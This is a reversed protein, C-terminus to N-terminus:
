EEATSVPYHVNPDALPGQLQQSGQSSHDLSVFTIKHLAQSMAPDPHSTPNATAHIVALRTVDNRDYNTSDPDM